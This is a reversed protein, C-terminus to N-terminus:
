MVQGEYDIVQAGGGLFVFCCCCFFGVVFSFMRGGQDTKISTQMIREVRKCFGALASIHKNQLTVESPSITQGV